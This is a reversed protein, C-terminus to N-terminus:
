IQRLTEPPHAGFREFEPKLWHLWGAAESAPLPVSTHCFVNVGFPRSTLQRTQRIADRAASATMAGVGLSGLAGAESVAAALCPTSVGAMPAQLVPVDLNLRQMLM